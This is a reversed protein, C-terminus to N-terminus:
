PRTWTGRHNKTESEGNEGLSIFQTTYTAIKSGRAKAMVKAHYLCRFCFECNPHLMEHNM